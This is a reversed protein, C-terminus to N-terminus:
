GRTLRVAVYILILALVVNLRGMHSAVRRLGDYTGGGDPDRARSSRPGVVFDHIAATAIMVFVLLLKWALLVGQTTGWYAPNGLVSWNLLGRFYMNTLGTVLLVAIAIWATWRFQVGLDSFLEARLEPDVKRLVPAGVAALFLMGGIWFVAAIVHITVSLHYLSV